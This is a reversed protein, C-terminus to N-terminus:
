SYVNMKQDLFEEWENEALKMQMCELFLDSLNVMHGPHGKPLALKMAIALDFFKKKIVKQNNGCFDSNNSHDSPSNIINNNFNKHNPKAYSLNSQSVTDSIISNLRSTLNTTASFRQFNIPNYASPKNTSLANNCNNNPELIEFKEKGYQKIKNLIQLMDPTIYSTESLTLFLENLSKIIQLIVIPDKNHILTLTLDLFHALMSVIQQILIPDWSASGTLNEYFKIMQMLVNTTKNLHENVNKIQGALTLGTGKNLENSSTILSNYHNDSNPVKHNTSKHCVASHADIKSENIFEECNVCFVNNEMELVAKQHISHLTLNRDMDIIEKM